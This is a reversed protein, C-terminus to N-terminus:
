SHEGAFRECDADGAHLEGNYLGLPPLPYVFDAWYHLIWCQDCAVWWWHAALQFWVERHDFNLSDNVLASCSELQAETKTWQFTAVWSPGMPDHGPHSGATCGCHWWSPVKPARRQNLPGVHHLSWRSFSPVFTLFSMLVMCWVNFMFGTGWIWSECTPWFVIQDRVSRCLCSMQMTSFYSGLEQAEFVSQPNGSQDTSIREAQALILESSPLVIYFWNGQHEHCAITAAFM